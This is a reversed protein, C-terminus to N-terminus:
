QPNVLHLFTCLRGKYRHLYLHCSYKQFYEVRRFSCDPRVYNYLGPLYQLFHNKIDQAEINLTITFSGCTANDTYTFRVLLYDLTNYKSPECLFLRWKKSVVRTIKQTASCGDSITSTTTAEVMYNNVGAVTPLITFTVKTQGPMM